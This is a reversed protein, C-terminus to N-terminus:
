HRKTKRWLAVLSGLTPFTRSTAEKRRWKLIPNMVIGAECSCAGCGQALLMAGREREQWETPLETSLLAPSPAAPHRLGGTLGSRWGLVLSLASALVARSGAPPLLPPLVSRHCLAHGRRPAPTPPIMGHPVTASYVLREVEGFTYTPKSTEWQQAIIQGSPLPHWLLVPMGLSALTAFAMLPVPSPATSCWWRNGRPPVPISEGGGLARCHHRSRLSHEVELPGRFAEGSTVAHPPPTAGQM